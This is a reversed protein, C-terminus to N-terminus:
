KAKKRRSPWIYIYWLLFEVYFRKAHYSIGFGWTKPYEQDDLRNVACHIPMRM